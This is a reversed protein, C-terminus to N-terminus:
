KKLRWSEIPSTVKSTSIGITISIMIIFLTIVLVPSQDTYYHADKSTTVEPKTGTTREICDTESEGYNCEPKWEDLVSM